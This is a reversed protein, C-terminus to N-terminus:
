AGHEMLGSLCDLVPQGREDLHAAAAQYYVALYQDLLELPLQYNALLGEVWITEESVADLDGLTLAAQIGARLRTNAQALYASPYALPELSQQVTSEIALLQEQFHAAAEQYAPSIPEVPAFSPTTAIIQQVIRPAEQLHDGLFYGPIRSRLSPQLNFIRGSYALPVGREQVFRAMELLTAATHLQQASSVM